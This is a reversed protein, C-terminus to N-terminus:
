FDYIHRGAALSGRWAIVRLCAVLWLMGMGYGALVDTPYHVGLYLRSLGILAVVIATIGYTVKARSPYRRSYLYAIFGYLVLSGIAHGSPFGYSTEHILPSWLHPRSRGFVLKLGSNLGLAGLCAVVLMVFELRKHQYLLWALAIAVIVIVFAPDGLRTISVMVTDLGPSAWHHLEMLVGVDLSSTEKEWVERCILGLGLVLSLCASRGLINQTTKKM